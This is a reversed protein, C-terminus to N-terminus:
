KCSMLLAKEYKIVRRLNLVCIYVKYREIIKMHKQLINFKVSNQPDFLHFLNISRFIIKLWEDSNRSLLYKRFSKRYSQQEYKCNVKIWIESEGDREGYSHLISLYFMRSQQFLTFYTLFFEATWKAWCETCTCAEDWQTRKFVGVPLGTCLWQYTVNSIDYFKTHSHPLYTVRSLSFHYFM